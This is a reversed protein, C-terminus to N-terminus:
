RDAPHRLKRSLIVITFVLPLVGLLETVVWALRAHGIATGSLIMVGLMIWNWGLFVPLTILFWLFGPGYRQVRFVTGFGLVTGVVWVGILVWLGGRGIVTVVGAAVLDAVLLAVLIWRLESDGPKLPSKLEAILQRDIWERRKPEAM